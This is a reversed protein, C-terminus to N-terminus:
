RPTLVEGGDGQGGDFGVVGPLCAQPVYTLLGKALLLPFGDLLHEGEATLNAQLEEVLLFMVDLVIFENPQLFLDALQTFQGEGGRFRIASVRGQVGIGIGDDQSEPLVQAFGNAPLGIRRSM